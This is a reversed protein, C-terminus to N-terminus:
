SLQATRGARRTKDRMEEDPMKFDTRLTAPWDARGRSLLPVKALGDHFLYRKLLLGHDGLIEGHDSMFLMLTDDRPGTRDLTALVSRIVHYLLEIMAYYAAKIEQM